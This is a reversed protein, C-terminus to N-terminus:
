FLTSFLKPLSRELSCTFDFFKGTEYSIFGFGVALEFNRSRGQETRCIASPDSHAGHLIGNGTDITKEGSHNERGNRRIINEFM